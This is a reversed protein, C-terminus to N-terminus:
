TEGFKIGLFTRDDDYTKVAGDVVYLLAMPSPASNAWQDALVAAFEPEDELLIGVGDTTLALVDGPVAELYRVAAQTHKPLPHVVNAM